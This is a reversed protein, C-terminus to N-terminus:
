IIPIGFAKEIKEVILIKKPIIEVAKNGANEPFNVRLANNEHQKIIISAPKPKNAKTPLM